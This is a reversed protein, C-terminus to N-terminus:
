RNATAFLGELNKPPDKIFGCEVAAALFSEFCTPQPDTTFDLFGWSEDLVVKALEKGTLRKLELNAMVKAEEVHANMWDIVEANAGIIRKVLDPHEELFATRAVLVTTPFKHDPWLDREDILRIADTEVVLRTAWPEPVWAADLEGLKFQTLIDPNKIPMVKVTGGKDFPSLGERAIFHRLSVDQTNGLQPTAVRRGALDRM